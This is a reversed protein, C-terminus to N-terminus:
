SLGFKGGEAHVPRHTAENYQSPGASQSAPAAASTAAGRSLDTQEARGPNRAEVPSPGSVAEGAPAHPPQDPYPGRKHADYTEDTAQARRKPSVADKLAELIDSM